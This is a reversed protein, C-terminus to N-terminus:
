SLAQPRASDIPVAYNTWNESSCNEISPAAASYDSLGWFPCAGWVLISLNVTLTFQMFNHTSLSKWNEWICSYDIQNNTMFIETQVNRFYFAPQSSHSVMGVQSCVCGQTTCRLLHPALASLTSNLPKGLNDLYSKFAIIQTFPMTEITQPSM